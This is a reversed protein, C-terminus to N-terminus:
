SPRRPRSASQRDRKVRYMARDAVEILCRPDATPDDTLTFGVSVGVTVAAEAVMMPERFAAGLRTALVDAEAPEVSECVLVFEDGGVRAATDTPRLVGRIRHAAEILVEDGAPHGFRDNIGKFGDLDIVFVALSGAGRRVRALAQALRDDLLFRNPLGTLHDHTAREALEAEVHHRDTVDRLLALLCPRGEWETDVVRMEAYVVEHGPRVLEVEAVDGSLVPFGVERGVLDSPSRGLLVAAAGNVFRVIGADDVIVVGDSSREVVGEFRAEVALLRERLDIVEEGLDVLSAEGRGPPHEGQAM